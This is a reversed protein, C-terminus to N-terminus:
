PQKLAKKLANHFAKLGESPKGDIAVVITPLKRKILAQADGMAQASILQGFDYQRGPIALRGYNGRVFMVFMGEAPGGKYLQGISHLYRPGYGRLTAMGTRTRVVDRIDSLVAETGHDAKFYNLLAFYTPPKAGYFYRRLLSTINTLEDYTYKKSGDYAILGLAGWKSHPLQDPFEGSREFASLISNTNDKSETVNPEDFPNIGLHYGAVATAAEWLLFQRGLEHPDGLTMQVVPVKMSELEAVLADHAPTRERQMKIQVFFRDAGYTAPKGSREAEIPVVGKGSKGTSEAVLQEIWPVLPATKNSAIFTMKNNGHMAAVAMLTGLVVAPNIEGKRDLLMTQMFLADDILKRLDVGAFFASVIGFYSLASYRGGIDAPNVFVKRYRNKKAFQQLSSSEDTIAAFHRGANKVGAKRLEELFFAEQSRTEVTGGSKSAVIFLSKKLDIKRAVSKVAQPDTSDVVKFSQLRRHKKFVLGFLEPCLSSGGMGMLVVHGIGDSLVSQGFREIQSMQRKMTTASDVWGLRNAVLKRTRGSRSFPGPDRSMIKTIVDQRAARELAKDYEIKLSGFSIRLTGQKM